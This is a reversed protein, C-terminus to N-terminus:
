VLAAAPLQATVRHEFQMTHQTSVQLRIQRDQQVGISGANHTSGAAAILSGRSGCTSSVAVLVAELLLRPCEKRPHMLSIQLDRFPLRLPHDYHVCAASRCLRM